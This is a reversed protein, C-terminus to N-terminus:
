PAQVTLSGPSLPHEAKLGKFPHLPTKASLLGEERDGGGQGCSACLQICVLAGSTSEAEEEPGM